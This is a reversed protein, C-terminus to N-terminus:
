RVVANSRDSEASAARARDLGALYRERMVAHQKQVLQGFKRAVSKLHEPLWDLVPLDRDRARSLGLGEGAGYHHNGRHIGARASIVAVSCAPAGAGFVPDLAVKVTYGTRQEVAKVYM